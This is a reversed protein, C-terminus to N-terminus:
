PTAPEPVDLIQDRASRKGHLHFVLARLDEASTAGPGYVPSLKTGGADLYLPGFQLDPTNINFAVPATEDSVVGYYANYIGTSYSIMGDAPLLGTPFYQKFAPMLVVNTDFVNTDYQDPWAFNVPEYELVSGTNYDVTWAILLDTEPYNQVYTELDPVDDGDIDFDVFPIIGNGLNAWDGYTAMGFWFADDTAGAGVAKIDTAQETTNSTCQPGTAPSCTPLKPSTAGLQMASMLSVYGTASSQSIGKGKTIIDSGVVSSTTTAVPKAAVYVPVRLPAKRRQGILIRGSADSVFQRAAGLQSAEMTPDIVHRLRNTTITLKVRAWAGRHPRITLVRPTVSFSAGPPANVAQYSLRVTQRKGSTNVIRLRKTRTVTRQTIPAEVVGFSASVGNNPQAVYALLPTTAAALADVRGAGVRAPAYRRGKKNQRTFLDHSATNMVAAKLMLPSWSRHRSKVLAAIGAANPSAMSTGSFVFPQTGTGMGASAITDGPATVDPKVVGISGHSGRSSFSSLTDSIGTNYDKISVALAGDFTVNLDVGVHPQLKDVWAKPLQIVPIDTDGTIGAGFVDLSSTFIAGIAGAAKANGSRQVSGCARTADNDDWTLWVIKGNVANAEDTSFATCGDLNSPGPMAVVDGTVPASGAWDYAISFQGAATGLGAPTNIQLGDRLQFSDVSSAVQLSSVANGPSGGVDTLDGSNGASMVSLVGHKALEDVVLTQPDDVMGYPSGLSLNIVDLHDAFNGDGNPDLAWDLAPIVADTSGECGFVKLAYLKAQPAMGPGIRMDELKTRTLKEYSGGFTSGDAKVGFGTATGSVHTGHENCDLPNDDPVPIPSYTPSEPDADYADGVFDYGGAVKARAKAPLADRWGSDAATARADDYATTTGPGGFDSHTYDLGTDIVGIKVGAGTGGAYHWTRLAKVLSATNSNDVTRPVIRSVKVVDSRSALARVAAPDATVGMGPVANSVVFLQRAEADVGRAAGLADGAQRDIQARRGTVAARGKAAAAVAGSGRFQVFYPARAAAARELPRKGIALDHHADSPGLPLPTAPSLGDASATSTSGLVVVAATAAALTVWTRRRQRARNV